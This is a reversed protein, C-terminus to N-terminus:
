ESEAPLLSELVPLVQQDYRFLFARLEGILAGAAQQCEAMQEPTPAAGIKYLQYELENVLRILQTHGALVQEFETRTLSPAIM